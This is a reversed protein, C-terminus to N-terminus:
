RAPRTAARRRAPPRAVVLDGARPLVAVDAGAAGGLAAEVSPAWTAFTPAVASPPQDSVLVVRHGPPLKPALGLAYIAENITAVPGIGEDCAAAVVVQGGAALLAAAPALLKCAQYLNASVPAGDSVVVHAFRRDPAVVEFVPRAAAVGARHAAVPDGAVVAVPGGHAGRVVNLLFSPGAMAGAAELDARCPNADM